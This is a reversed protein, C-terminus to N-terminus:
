NEKTSPAAKAHGQEILSVAVADDVEVVDGKEVAIQPSALERPEGVWCVKM